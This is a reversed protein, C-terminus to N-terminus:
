NKADKIRLEVHRYYVAPGYGDTNWGRKECLHFRRDHKFEEPIKADHDRIFKDVLAVYEPSYESSNFYEKVLSLVEDVYTVRRKELKELEAEITALESRLFDYRKQDLIKYAM